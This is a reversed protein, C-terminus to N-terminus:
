ENIYKLLSPDNILKIVALAVAGNYTHDVTHPSSNRVEYSKSKGNGLKVIFELTVAIKWMGREFQSSIVTVEISKETPDKIKLGRSQFEAALQDALGDTLSPESGYYHHKSVNGLFFTSDNSVGKVINIEQGETFSVDSSIREPTIPYEQWIYDHRVTCSTIMLVLILIGSKFLTNM